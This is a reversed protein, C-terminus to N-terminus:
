NTFDHKVDITDNKNEIVVTINEDTDAKIKEDEDTTNIVDNVDSTTKEEEIISKNQISEENNITNTNDVDKKITENININDNSDNSDEDTIDQKKITKKEKIINIEVRKKM